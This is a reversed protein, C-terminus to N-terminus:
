DKHEGLDVEEGDLRVKGSYWIGENSSELDEFVEEDIEAGFARGDPHLRDSQNHEVFSQCADADLHVSYRPTRGYGGESEFWQKVIVQRM